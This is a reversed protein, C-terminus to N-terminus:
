TQTNLPASNVCRWQDPTGRTAYVDIHTICFNSPLNKLLPNALMVQKSDESVNGYLLSIHPKYAETLTQGSLESARKQIDALNEDLRTRLYVCQFYRQRTELGQCEVQFQRANSALSQALQSVETEMCNIAGLLTIHPPFVPADYKAALQKIVGQLVETTNRDPRLWLSYTM